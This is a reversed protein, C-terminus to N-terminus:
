DKTTNANRTWTSHLATYLNRLGVQGQDYPTRHIAKKIAELVEQKLAEIEASDAM